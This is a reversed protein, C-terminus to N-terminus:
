KFMREIFQNNKMRDAIDIDEIVKDYWKEITNRFPWMWGYAGSMFQKIINDRMQQSKASGIGGYEYVAWINETYAEWEFKARWYALGLPFFPLLYLLAFLFGGYKEHQRMHVREHRLVILKKYAISKNWGSPVYLTKGITTNYNTMFESQSWFTIIKLFVDIFKCLNSDKKQVIRFDPFEFKIKKIKEDVLEEYYGM